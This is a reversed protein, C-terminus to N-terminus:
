CSCLSKPSSVGEFVMTNSHITYNQQTLGDKFSSVLYTRDTSIRMPPTPLLMATTRSNTFCFPWRIAAFSSYALPIKDRDTRVIRCPFNLTTFLSHGTPEAPILFCTPLRPMTEHENPKFASVCSINSVFDTTIIRTLKTEVSHGFVM